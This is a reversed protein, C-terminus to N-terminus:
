SMAPPPQSTKRLRCVQCLCLPLLFLWCWGLKPADALALLEQLAPQLINPIYAM